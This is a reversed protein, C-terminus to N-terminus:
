DGDGPRSANRSAEMLQRFSQPNDTEFSAVFAEVDALSGDVKGAALDLKFQKLFRNADAIAEERRGLKLKLRAVAVAQWGCM